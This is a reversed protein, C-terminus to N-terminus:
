PCIFDEFSSPHCCTLPCRQTVRGSCLGVEAVSWPVAGHQCLVDLCMLALWCFGCQLLVLPQKGDGLGLVGPWAALFCSTPCLSQWGMLVPPSSTPVQVGGLQVLLLAFGGKGCGGGALVLGGWSCTLPCFHEGPQEVSLEKVQLFCLNRDDRWM